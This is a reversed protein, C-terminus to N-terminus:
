DRAASAKSKATAGDGSKKSSDSTSSSAGDNASPSGSDSKTSSGTDTSTSDDTSKKAAASGHDNKYFGEGKFAIGVKSFVKVVKGKGPSICAETVPGGKRKGPCRSLADDSFSQVFEFQSGCTDCRYDYTPM